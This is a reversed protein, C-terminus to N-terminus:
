ISNLPSCVESPHHLKWEHSSEDIQFEEDDFLGKFRDDSQIDQLNSKNKKKGKRVNSDDDDYGIDDEDGELKKALAANVKPVKRNVASIRSSRQKEMKASIQARRHAEYEFPDAISKAKQYLRLDVFFGHMYAKLLNTGVLHDLGLRTLEKRTIFKYDDYLTM